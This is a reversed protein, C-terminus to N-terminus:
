QKPWTYVGPQDDLWRVLYGNFVAYQSFSKASWDLVFIDTMIKM